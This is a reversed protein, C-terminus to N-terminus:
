CDAISSRFIMRRGFAMASASLREAVLHEIPQTMFAATREFRNIWIEGIPMLRYHIVTATPVARQKVQRQTGWALPNLKARTLSSRGILRTSM